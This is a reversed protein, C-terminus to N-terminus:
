ATQSASVRDSGVALTQRGALNEVDSRGRKVGITLQRHALWFGRKGGVSGLDSNSMNSTYM